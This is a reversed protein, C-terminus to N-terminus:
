HRLIATDFQHPWKRKQTFQYVQPVLQELAEFANDINLGSSLISDGRRIARATVVVVSSRITQMPPVGNDQVRVAITKTGSTSFSVVPHSGVVDVDFRGTFDLDWEFAPPQNADSDTSFSDLSFVEDVIATYPGGISVQPSENEDTIQIGLSQEISTGAATTLRVRVSYSSRTEFDLIANTLLQNGRIRFKSNDTAGSGSVFTFSYGAVNPDISNFTGVLADFLRKEITSNQNLSIATPGM